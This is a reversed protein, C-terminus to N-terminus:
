KKEREVMTQNKWRPTMMILNAEANKECLQKELESIWNRLLLDTYFNGPPIYILKPNSLEILHDEM